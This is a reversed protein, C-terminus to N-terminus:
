QYIKTGFDAQHHILWSLLGSVLIFRLASLASKCTLLMHNQPLLFSVVTGGVKSAFISIVVFINASNQGASQHISTYPSHPGSHARRPLPLPDAKQM